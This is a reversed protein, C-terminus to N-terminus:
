KAGDVRVYEVKWEVQWPGDGTRRENLAEYRDEGIRKWHTRMTLDKPQTLHREPFNLGDAVPEVSGSDMDGDSSWYWFVIHQQKPDFAYVTEGLYDPNKGHVVHKDRIFHSGYMAEFCHTDRGMERPLDGAWCHGVLFQLPQLLDKAAATPDAGLSVAGMLILSGLM